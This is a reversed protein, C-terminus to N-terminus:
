SPNPSPAGAVQSTLTPWLMWRGSFNRRAGASWPRPSRSPLAPIHLIRYTRREYRAGVIITTMLGRAKLEAYDTM